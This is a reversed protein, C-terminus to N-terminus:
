ANYWEWIKKAVNESYGFYGLVRKLDLESPTRQRNRNNEQQMDCKASLVTIFTIFFLDLHLYTCCLYVFSIGFSDVAFWFYFLNLHNNLM